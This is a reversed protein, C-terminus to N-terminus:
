GTYHTNQKRSFTMWPYSTFALIEHV